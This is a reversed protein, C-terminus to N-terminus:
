WVGGQGDQGVARVANRGELATETIQLMKWALWGAVAGNIVHVGGIVLAAGWLSDRALAQSGLIRTFVETVARIFGHGYLIAATAITYLVTFLSAAAGTGILSALSVGRVRFFAEILLGELFIALISWPKFAGGFVLSLAATIFGMIAVTGRRPVVGYGLAYVILNLGVMISGAMPFRIMKLYSGLTMELAANCGALLALIAIEYSRSRHNLAV